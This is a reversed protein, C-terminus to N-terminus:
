FDDPEREKDPSIRIIVGLTLGLQNAEGFTFKVEAFPTFYDSLNLQGGVGINLGLKTDFVKDRFQEGLLNYDYKEITRTFSLGMLGYGQYLSSETIVYHGDLNVVWWISEEYGDRTDTLDVHHPFFYVVNPAIDIQKNITYLAYIGIGFEEIRTGYNGGAGVYTFQASLNSLAVCSVMALFSYIKKCM